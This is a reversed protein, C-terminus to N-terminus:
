RLTVPNTEIRGPTREVRPECTTFVVRGRSTRPAGKVLLRTTGDAVICGAAAPAGVEEVTVAASTSGGDPELRAARQLRVPPATIGHLRVLVLEGATYRDFDTRAFARANGGSLDEDTRSTATQWFRPKGVDVHLFGQSAYHGAGCCELGRLEMWLPELLDRRLALDAALGETHLSGGAAPLGRRRMGENYAPSRYGSLLVLPQGARVYVWSLLEVFRPTVEGELGDRSRMVRRIRDLADYDYRGADDRYRVDVREGTARNVIALSGDGAVFFRPEAARAAVALGLVLLAAIRM